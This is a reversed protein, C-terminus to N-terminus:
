ADIGVFAARILVDSDVPVWEQIRYNYWAMLANWRAGSWQEREALECIRPSPRSIILPGTSERRQQEDRLCRAISFFRVASKAERPDASGSDLTAGDLNGGIFEILVRPMTTDEIITQPTPQLWAKSRM